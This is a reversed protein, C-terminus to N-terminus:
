SCSNQRNYTRKYNADIKMAESNSDGNLYHNTVWTYNTFKFENRDNPEQWNLDKIKGQPIMWQCRKEQRRTVIQFNILSNSNDQIAYILIIDENLIIIREYQSNRWKSSKPHSEVKIRKTTRVVHPRMISRKVCCRTPQSKSLTLIVSDLIEKSITYDKM